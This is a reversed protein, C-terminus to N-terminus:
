LGCFAIYVDDRKRSGGWGSKHVVTQSIKCGKQLRHMIFFFMTCKLFSSRTPQKEYIVNELFIVNIKFSVAQEM